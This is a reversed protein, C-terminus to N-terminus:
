YAGWFMDQLPMTVKGNVSFAAFLREIEQRSECNINISFNNGKQFPMGPLTDSTMLVASGKTLRAHIIRDRAEPPFETQGKADSFSTLELEAGLCTKYFNMAERTNGDFVLYTNLEKM